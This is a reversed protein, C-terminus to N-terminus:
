EEDTVSITPACEAVTLARMGPLRWSTLVGGWSRMRSVRSNAKAEQVGCQPRDIKGRNALSTPFGGRTRFHFTVGIPRGHPSGALSFRIYPCPDALTRAHSKGEFGKLMRGRPRVEDFRPPCTILQLYEFRAPYEVV